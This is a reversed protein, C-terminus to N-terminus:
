APETGNQAAARALSRLELSAGRDLVQAAVEVLEELSSALSATDERASADVVQQAALRARAPLALTSFWVRSAAARSERQTKSLRAAGVNANAFRAAMLAALAIEREGGIALRAARQAVSRFAFEVPRVAYPPLEPLTPVPSFRRVHRWEAFLKVEAVNSL